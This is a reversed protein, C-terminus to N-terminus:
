GRVGQYGTRIRRGGSKKTTTREAARETEVHDVKILSWGVGKEGAWDWKGSVSALSDLWDEWHVRKRGCTKEWKELGAQRLKRGKKERGRRFLSIDKKSEAEEAKDGGSKARFGQGEPNRKEAGIRIGVSVEGKTMKWQRGVKSKKCGKREGGGRSEKEM